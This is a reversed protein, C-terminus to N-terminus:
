GWKKTGTLYNVKCFRTVSAIGCLFVKFLFEELLFVTENSYKLDTATKKKNYCCKALYHQCPLM